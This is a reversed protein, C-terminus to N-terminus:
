LDLLNRHRGAISREIELLLSNGGPIRALLESAPINQRAAQPLGALAYPDAGLERIRLPPPGVHEKGRDSM